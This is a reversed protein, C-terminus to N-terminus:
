LRARGLSENIAKLAEQPLKSEFVSQLAPYFFMRGSLRELDLRRKMDRTPGADKVFADLLYTMVVGQLQPRIKFDLHSNSVNLKTAQRATINWKGHQRFVDKLAGTRETVKGNTSPQMKYLPVWRARTGGGEKAVRQVTWAYYQTKGQWTVKKIRAGPVNRPIINEAAQRKIEDMVVTFHKLLSLNYEKGVKDLARVFAGANSNVVKTRSVAM